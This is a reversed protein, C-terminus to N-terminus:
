SLIVIKRLNCSVLVTNQVIFFESQKEVQQALGCLMCITSYSCGCIHRCIKLKQEPYQPPPPSLSPRLPHYPLPHPCPPSIVWAKYACIFLLVIFFILFNLFLFICCFYCM